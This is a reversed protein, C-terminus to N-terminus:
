FNPFLSSREIFAPLSNHHFTEGGKPEEIQDTIIKRKEATIDVKVGELWADWVGYEGEV